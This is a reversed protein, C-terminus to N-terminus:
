DLILYLEEETVRRFFEDTLFYDAGDPIEDLIEDLELRATIDHEEIKGVEATGDVFYNGTPFNIYFKM